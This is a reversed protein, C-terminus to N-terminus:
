RRLLLAWAGPRPIVHPINRSRFTESGHDHRMARPFGADDSGPGGAGAPEGAKEMTDHDALPSACPPSSDAAPSCAAVSVPVISVYGDGTQVGPSNTQFAGANYSGGVRFGGRGGVNGRTGAKAAGTAPAGGGGRTPRSGNAGGRDGVTWGESSFFGGPDAAQGYGNSGGSGAAEGTALTAPADGGNGGDAALMLKIPSPLATEGLWVMSDGGRGGAPRHPPTAPTGQSGAVIKLPDGRELYFLGKVRDGNGGPGGGAGGQAGSAEIFYGGTAPVLYFQVTGTASFVIPTNSM